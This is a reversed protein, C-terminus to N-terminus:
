VGELGLEGMELREDEDIEKLIYPDDKELVRWGDYYRKIYQARNNLFLEALEDEGFESLIDIRIKGIRHEFEINLANLAQYDEPSDPDGRDFFEDDELGEQEQIEKIKINLENLRVDNHLEFIRHDSIKELGTALGFFILDPYISDVSTYRFVQLEMILNSVKELEKIKCKKIERVLETVVDM